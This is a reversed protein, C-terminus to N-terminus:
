LYRKLDALNVCRDLLGRTVRNIVTTYLLGNDFLDQPSLPKSPTGGTVMVCADAIMAAFDLDQTAIVVAWGKDRLAAIRRSQKKATAADIAATPEDLLLIGVPSTDAAASGEPVAAAEAQDLMNKLATLQAEGSRLEQTLFLSTLNNGAAKAQLAELLRTKGSGNDGVCAIIEGGRLELGGAELLLPKTTNSATSETDASGDEGDEPATVTEDPATEDTPVVGKEAGERAARQLEVEPWTELRKRADLVSLPYNAILYTGAMADYGEAATAKMHRILPITVNAPLANTFAAANASAKVIFDQVAGDYVIRDKLFFLVRECVPFLEELHRDSIVVTIEQEQNLHILFHLLLWASAPDLHATPEDLVLNPMQSAMQHALALRQRQGGSLAAAKEGVLGSVGLLSTIETFFLSAAADSAEGTEGDPLEGESAAADPAAADPAAADPANKVGGIPEPAEVPALDRLFRGKGSETLGCVVVFSGPSIVLDDTVGTRTDVKM